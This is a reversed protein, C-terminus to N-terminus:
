RKFHQIMIGASATTGIGLSGFTNRASNYERSYYQYKVREGRDNNLFFIELQKNALAISLRLQNKDTIANLTETGTAETLQLAALLDLKLANKATDYMLQELHEDSYVHPPLDDDNGQRMYHTDAKLEDFTM